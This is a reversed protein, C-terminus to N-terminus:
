ASARSSRWEANATCSKSLRKRALEKVRWEGHLEQELAQARAEESEALARAREAARRADAANQRLEASHATATVPPALREIVPPLPARSPVEENVAPPDGGGDHEPSPPTADQPLEEEATAGRGGSRKTSAGGRAPRASRSRGGSGSGSSGGSGTGSRAAGSCGTGSHDAGGNRCTRVRTPADGQTASARTMRPRVQPPM